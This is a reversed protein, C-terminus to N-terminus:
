TLRRAGPGPCWGPRATGSGPLWGARSGAAGWPGRECVQRGSLSSGPRARSPLHNGDRGRVPDDGDAVLDQLDAGRDDRLVRQGALLRRRQRSLPLRLRCRDCPRPPRGRDAAHPQGVAGHDRGLHHHGGDGVRHGPARRRRCAMRGPARARGGAPDMRSIGAIGSDVLTQKFGGGAGVILLIGAIPGLSAGVRGSVDDAGLGLRAGFLYMAALVTILLAVIPKGVFLAAHVAPNGSDEPVLTEVVTRLLMLGVPLLVVMISTAFSPRLGEHEEDSAGLPEPAEIPVWRAMLRAAVPGSIIVTPVAVLLGLGLTLGLDAKVANIAILPGPHPPVLGHLASLGALASVGLLILSQHARRAVIMVVPILLVIGVEFFLPIGIVFAILAMAWPLRPGPTRALVTDVIQDAGGSDILLRGIIAGFAILTGVDGITSGMGKTFATFTDALPIGAVVALVASGLTLALFPHMKRWVILVIISAIGLLAAAILQAHNDTHSVTDAAPLAVPQAPLTFTM